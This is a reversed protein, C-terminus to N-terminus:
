KIELTQHSLSCFKLLCNSTSTAQNKLIDLSWHCVLHSAAASCVVACSNRPSMTKWMRFAKSWPHWSLQWVRKCLRSHRGVTSCQIGYERGMGKNASMPGTTGISYGRSNWAWSERRYVQSNIMGLRKKMSSFGNSDESHVKGGGQETNVNFKLSMSQFKIDKALSKSSGAQCIPWVCWPTFAM